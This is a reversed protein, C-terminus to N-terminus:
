GRRKRKPKADALTIIDFESSTCEDWVSAIQIAEGLTKGASFAGLAYAAGSGVGYVQNHMPLAIFPVSWLVIMGDLTIQLALIDGGMDHMLKSLPERRQPKQGGCYWERFIEGWAADGADAFISGDPAAWTKTVSCVHPGIRRRDAAIVGHAAIITTM